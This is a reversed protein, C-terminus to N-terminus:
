MPTRYTGIVARAKGRHRRKRVAPSPDRPEGRPFLFAKVPSCSGYWRKARYDRSKIRPSLQLRCIGASTTFKAKGRINLVGPCEEGAERQWPAVQNNHGKGESPGGM